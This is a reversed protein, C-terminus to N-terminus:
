LAKWLVVGLSESKTEIGKSGKQKEEAEDAGFRWTPSPVKSSQVQGKGEVHFTSGDDRAVAPHREELTLKEILDERIM